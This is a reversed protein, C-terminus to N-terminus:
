VRYMLKAHVTYLFPMYTAAPVINAEGYGSVYQFALEFMINHPLVYNIGVGFTPNIRMSENLVDDRFTFDIGANAFGRWGTHAIQTMFKAVGMFAWTTSRLTTLNYYQTYYNYGGQFLVTTSPFRMFMSELAWFPKVEYGITGGWVWGSDGAGLPASMTIGSACVPDQNCNAVLMSWDTSGYGLLPGIYFPRRQWLEMLTDSNGYSICCSLLMALLNLKIGRPQGCLNECRNSHM